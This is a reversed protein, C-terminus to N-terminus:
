MKSHNEQPFLIANFEDKDMQSVEEYIVIFDDFNDLLIKTLAPDFQRGKDAKFFARVEERAVPPKYPRRSLLADFVDVISVIRASKPIEHAQLGTPYGHGNWHEHHYRTIDQAMQMPEHDSDEMIHFGIEAHQKIIDFETQDLKGKKQLVEKPVGIKGVDHMISAYKIHHRFEPSEGSLRAMKESFLSIRLVHGYTDKDFIEAIIALRYITEIYAQQLENYKLKIEGLLDKREVANKIILLLDDNDWPKEIYYYIGVENIARIANEKDAYGTLIISTLNEKIKKAKILFDIGNMEPMLFDTVVVDISKRKIIGLAELPRTAIFVRYDTELEMLDRISEVVAPEDDLLLINSM